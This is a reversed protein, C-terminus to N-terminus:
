LSRRFMYKFFMLKSKLSIIDIRQYVKFFYAKVKSGNHQEPNQFNTWKTHFHWMWDEEIFRVKRYPGLQGPVLTGTKEYRKDFNFVM